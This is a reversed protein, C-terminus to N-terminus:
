LVSVKWIMLQWVKFLKRKLMTQYAGERLRCLTRGIQLSGWVIQCRRKKDCQLLQSQRWLHRKQLFFLKLAKKNLLPRNFKSKYSKRRLVGSRNLVKTVVSKKLLLTKKKSIVAYYKYKQIVSHVQFSCCEKNVKIRVKYGKWYAARV